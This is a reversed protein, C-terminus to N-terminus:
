RPTPMDTSARSPQIVTMAGLGPEGASRAPIRAPSRRTSISPWAIFLQVTSSARLASRPGSPLVTLSTTSRPPAVIGILRSRLSMWTRETCRM